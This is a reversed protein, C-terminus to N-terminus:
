IIYIEDVRGIIVSIVLFKHMLMNKGFEYKVCVHVANLNTCGWQSQAKLIYQFLFLQQACEIM